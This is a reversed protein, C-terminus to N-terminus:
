LTQVPQTIQMLLRVFVLNRKLFFHKLNAYELDLNMLEKELIECEM